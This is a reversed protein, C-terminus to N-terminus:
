GFVNRKWFVIFISYKLCLLRRPAITKFSYEPYLKNVIAGVGRALNFFLTKWSKDCGRDMLGRNVGLASNLPKCGWSHPIKLTLLSNFFRIIPAKFNASLWREGHVFSVLMRQQNTVVSVKKKNPNKQKEKRWDSAPSSSLSVEKIPLTSANICVSQVSIIWLKSLSNGLM